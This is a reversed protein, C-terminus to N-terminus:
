LTTGAPLRDLRVNGPLNLAILPQETFSNLGGMFWHLDSPAVGYDHQLMGRM